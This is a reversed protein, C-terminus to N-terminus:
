TNTINNYSQITPDKPDSKNNNNSKEKKKRFFFFHICALM